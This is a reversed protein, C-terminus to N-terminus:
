LAMTTSPLAKLSQIFIIELRLLMQCASSSLLVWVMGALLVGPMLTLPRVTDTQIREMVQTIRQASGQSLGADKVSNLCIESVANNMEEEMEVARRLNDLLEAKDM